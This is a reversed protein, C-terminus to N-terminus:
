EFDEPTLVISAGAQVTRDLIKDKYRIRCANDAAARVVAKELRHEKWALDIEFGGRARLGQIRGQPWQAPLAPLLEILVKRDPTRIHSQLLMEAVAATGGFNGDIQFPPHNDFLNPLTSKALLAQLNEYAKQPEHLRSWFLIMWARSWGTHGGGHTLRYEITKKVAETIEPHDYLNYQRGPHLGFLHSMHRHGPEAEEFPLAWEMLRGDPGIQTPALKELATQVRRTFEDQIGLIKAAELTNSFVDWIIQQGMSPGMSVAIKEKTSSLYLNEPSTEPGATLLGTQPHPTLYDLYFLAAEKLLPYARERLFDKDQTFRYHEMFHQSAWGGGHPWLGYQVNGFPDTYLWADTTFSACFGRAGYLRRATQRGNPVLREVFELFPTHCESLNTVEAPWYNMQININIHYDCDWPAAIMDNWIGQLNAPMCGPRSSSILLYRGFHFYLATLGPDDAGDKVAQLRADTPKESCDPGTLDLLCRRFLRQHEAIHEAKLQEYPKSCAAKVQQRCVQRRDRPLPKAPDKLNYDTAAALYFTASDANEIVLQNKDSRVRGGETQVKLLCHWKVGQQRGEHQAQGYMEIADPGAAATTFDAPRELAAKLNLKGPKDGVVRIVLINDAPSSFVERTYHVGEYVFRTTAIATDLCLQRRYDEVPIQQQQVLRVQGAMHGHGSYNTVSVALVNPGERLLRSANFAYPRNWIATRGLEKGNLYIIGRDNIPQFELRALGKEIQQATLNFRTRFVVTKEPPVDLSLASPWGNDDFTEALQSTDVGTLEPGRKWGQISLPSVTPQEGTEMRLYLDGLTQYSRPEIPRGMVAQITQQAEAYKGEFWLARSKEVAERFGEKAQPVPPGAWVTEENLQIREEVTGGFVMAGLRGNGVPLAETWEEAPQSYWLTFEEASVTSSICALLVFLTKM